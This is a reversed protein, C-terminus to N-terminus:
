SKARAMDDALRLAAILSDPRATHTGALAFATGHDPSARIIPLGLTVNVGGHFDLTKVPILAQDHYMCIAVDYSERAEAHFLTDGPHPGSVDIGDARLTEIAPAITELDERGLAGNEGAHPNLGAVALRPRPLGFLARLDREVIRCTDILVARTLAGPVDCLPIHVTVPVARLGGGVLMMVTRDVGTLDALFETHGPHRFGGDYLVGKHIPNTVMASAEATRCLSVAREIAGLVSPTNRPDPNGPEVPAQLAHRLVPLASNFASKADEPAEIEAIPTEPSLKALRDPDDILFFVPLKSEQRGRWAAITIEGGIGAPEGMTVAIPATM